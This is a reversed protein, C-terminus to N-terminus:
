TGVLAELSQFGGASAPTSRACTIWGGLRLELFRLQDLRRLCHTGADTLYHLRDVVLQEIGEAQPPLAGVVNPTQSRAQRRPHGQVVEAHSEVPM